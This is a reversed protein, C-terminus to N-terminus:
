RSQKLVTRQPFYYKDEIVQPLFDLKHLKNLTNEDEYLYAIFSDGKSIKFTETNKINDGKYYEIHTNTTGFDVSFCFKESTQPNEQWKIGLINEVKDNIIRIYEFNKDLIFFKSEVIEDKDDKNRMHRQNESPIKIEANNIDFFRLNIASLNYFKQRILHIRNYMNFEDPTKNLEDSTKFSPFIALSFASEVIAGKNNKLDPTTSNYYIREFTIYKQDNGEGKVPIKLIVKVAEGVAKLKFNNDNNCFDLSFYELFKKTLPFLYSKNEHDFGGNFFYTDNIKGALEIIHSTLFDNISLYPVNQGLGPLIREEIPTENTFPAKYDSKWMNDGYYKWTKKDSDDTNPIVLINTDKEGKETRLCFYSNQPDPKPLCRMQIGGIKLEKKNWEHADFDNELNEKKKIYEEINNKRESSNISINNSMYHKFDDFQDNKSNNEDRYKFVGHLYKQFEEGREYLQKLNEPNPDFLLKNGWRIPDLDEAPFFLTVPSSGGIIKGKYKIIYIGDLTDFDYAEADQKLYLDLTNALNKHAERKSEKLHNINKEKDWYSLSIGGRTNSNFLLEIIDLTHSVLRNDLEERSKITNGEKKMNKFATLVLDIRAFPSPISSPDRTINASPNKIANIQADELSNDISYWDTGSKGENHLRYCREKQM